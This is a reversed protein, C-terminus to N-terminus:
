KFFNTKETIKKAFLSKVSLFLLFLFEKYKCKKILFFIPIHKKEVKPKRKRYGKIEQLSEKRKKKKLIFFIESFVLTTEFFSSVFSKRKRFM